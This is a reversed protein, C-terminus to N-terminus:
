NNKKLVLSLNIPRNQERYSILLTQMQEMIQDQLTSFTGKLNCRKRLEGLADERLVLEEDRLDVLREGGARDM